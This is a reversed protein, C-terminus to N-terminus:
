EAQHSARDEKVLAFCKNFHKMGKPSWGGFKYHGSKVSAGTYKGQRRGPAKKKEQNDQEGQAAEEKEKAM